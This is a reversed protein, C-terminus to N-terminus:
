LPSIDSCGPLLTPCSKPAAGGLRRQSVSTVVNEIGAPRSYRLETRPQKSPAITLQVTERDGSESIAFEMSLAAGAVTPSPSLTSGTTCLSQPQWWRQGPHSSIHSSAPTRREIDRLPQLGSLELISPHNPVIFTSTNLCLSQDDAVSSSRSSAISEYMSHCLVRRLFLDSPPRLGM